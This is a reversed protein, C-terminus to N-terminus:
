RRKSTVPLGRERAICDGAAGPRRPAVGKLWATRVPPVVLSLGAALVGTIVLAAPFSVTGIAFMMLLYWLVHWDIRLIEFGMFYFLAYVVLGGALFAAVDLTRGRGRRPGITWWALLPLLFLLAFPVTLAICAAALAVGLLATGKVLRPSPRRSGALRGALGRGAALLGAVAALWAVIAPWRPSTLVPDKPTGFYLEFDGLLGVAVFGYLLAVAGVLPLWLGLLHVMAARWAPREAQAARSLSGLGALAFAAVFAWFALTLPWGRLVEHADEFFLFPGSESPFTTMSQLQRVAAEAVRGAHGLPVASQLEITDSPDHYTAYHLEAFEAPVTGALGVAPVGAAVLPGEDMFSIPVAQGLVQDLVGYVRPAPSAGVAVAVDRVLLQFWLAGYGRFQGRPDLDVGEYFWKGLNDLSLGAILRRVDPHTAVFRRAGLMGYEEGDSVVFVLGYTPTPEAAFVEALHLLVGIGSADNDAGQVTRPSQDLHAVLVIQEPRAGPMECVVNQMPVVRSDNVTEWADIRCDLGLASFREELWAAAAANNPRGSDRDPFRTAFESVWALAREGSFVVDEADVRVDTVPAPACSALLIALCALLFSTRRRRANM